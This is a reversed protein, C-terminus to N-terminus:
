WSQTQSVAIGSSIERGYDLSGFRSRLRAVLQRFSMEETGWLMRAASGTLSWRLYHLKEMDDWRNFQACNDFQVLFTEFCTTGDFKKPKLRGSNKHNSTHHRNSSSFSREPSNEKRDDIERRYNRKNKLDILEDDSSSYNEKSSDRERQMICRRSSERDLEGKHSSHKLTRLKRRNNLRKSPIKNVETESDSYCEDRKLPQSHRRDAHKTSVTSTSTFKVKRRDDVTPRNTCEDFQMLKMPRRAPKVATESGSARSRCSVEGAARGKRAPM